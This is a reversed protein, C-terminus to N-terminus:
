FRCGVGQVEFGLGRVLHPQLVERHVSTAEGGEGGGDPLALGELDWALAM